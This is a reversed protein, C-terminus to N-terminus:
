LSGPASWMSACTWLALQLTQLALGFFETVLQCGDGDSHPRDRFRGAQDRRGVRRPTAADPVMM